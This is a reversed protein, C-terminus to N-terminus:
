EEELHLYTTAPEDLLFKSSIQNLVLHEAPLLKRRKLRAHIGPLAQIDNRTACTTAVDTVLNVTGEDCTETAHILHGTWRKDGRCGWRAELDYPSVIQLRGPPFGDAETRPRMIGSKDILFHQGFIRRLAEAQRGRARAQDQSHLHQLLVYADGGAQKLRTAPHGPPLAPQGPPRVTQGV